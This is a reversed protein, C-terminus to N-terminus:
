TANISINAEAITNLVAQKASPTPFLYELNTTLVAIIVLLIIVIIVLRWDGKEM